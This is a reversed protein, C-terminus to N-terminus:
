EYVLPARGPGMARLYMSAFGLDRTMVIRGPGARRTRALAGALFGIRRLWPPGAVRIREIALRRDPSLGYYAFPDRAPVATDPRVILRVQHGSRALAACTEITQIGNARELPFRVDAVCLIDASM